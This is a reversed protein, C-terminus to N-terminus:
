TSLISYLKRRVTRTMLDDLGGQSEADAFLLGIRGFPSGAVLDGSQSLPYYREIRLPYEFSIASLGQEIPQSLTHRLIPRRAPSRPTFDFEQGLFPRVYNEAYAIGTSFQILLSYLDGPCRRTVEIFWYHEDQMIFQTHVLGDGLSLAKAMDTINGRIAELLTPSLDYRVCSTDVTFPNASGHEEVIHDNIIQGDAIFATHSYLQGEVYDEVLSHGSKSFQQALAIADKLGKATVSRLITIGRGSYADVPKVILPRDTPPEDSPWLTPIPINLGKAFQRFAQKNNITDTVAVSDIGPFDRVAAIEACTQYSRDNCGPVIFEVGLKDVLALAAPVDSYDLLSHNPVSRALYDQGNGGIVFVEHGQEVLYQHIPLSSLNTDFLAVRAM